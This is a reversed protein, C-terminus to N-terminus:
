DRMALEDATEEDLKEGILNYIIGDPNPTLWMRLDENRRTGLIRRMEEEPLEKYGVSVESPHNKTYIWGVLQGEPSSELGFVEYVRNLFLYGKLRLEDNLQDTKIRVYDLMQEANWYRRWRESYEDFIRNYGENRRRRNAAIEAKTPKKGSPLEKRDEMARKRQELEEDSFGHLMKWDTDTGFEKIVNGRYREFGMELTKYAAASAALRGNIVRYGGLVLIVAAVGMTATPAYAKVLEWKTNRRIVKTNMEFDAQTIAGKALREENEREVEEKFELIDHAKETAKCASVVTAGFGIIGGGILIEPAHARALLVATNGATRAGRSIGNVIAALNFM